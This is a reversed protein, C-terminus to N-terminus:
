QDLGSTRKWPDDPSRNVFTAIITQKISVNEVRFDHLTLNCCLWMPNLNCCYYKFGVRVSSCFGRILSPPTPPWNRRNTFTESPLSQYTQKECPLNHVDSRGSFGEHLCPEAGWGGHAATPQASFYTQVNDRSIRCQRVRSIRSTSIRSMRHRTGVSTPGWVKPFGYPASPLRFKTKVMMGLSHSVIPQCNPLFTMRLWMVWSKRRRYIWNSRRRLCM